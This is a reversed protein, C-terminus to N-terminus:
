GLGVLKRREHGVMELLKASELTTLQVKLWPQHLCFHIVAETLLSVASLMLFHIDEGSGM